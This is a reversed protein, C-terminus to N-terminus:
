DCKDQVRFKQGFAHYYSTDQTLYAIRFQNHRAMRLADLIIGATFIVFAAVAMGTVLIATPIRLIVGQTFYSYVLPLALTTAVFLLAGAIVGFFQFPRADRLLRLLAVFIRFGDRYTSLKSESGSPRSFYRTDIERTPLRQDIAHINMETEIEFRESIAPFTKVFRRSFVRYGSFIDAIKFGFLFSATMSFIRNGIVHGPRYTNTVVSVRRGVIMDYHKSLLEDVLQPAVSADYTTDGDAMIYVDAEVEAFLRRVANGKGAIPEVVVRAGAQRAVEATGDSSNNDCVWIESNPLYLQFAAITDAVTQEENYCPLLVAVRM